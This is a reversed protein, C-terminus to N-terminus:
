KTSIVFNHTLKDLYTVSINLCKVSPLFSFDIKPATYLVHFRLIIQKGAVDIRDFYANEFDPCIILLRQFLSEGFFKSKM